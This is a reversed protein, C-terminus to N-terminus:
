TTAFYLEVEPSRANDWIEEIADLVNELGSVDLFSKFQGAFSHNVHDEINASSRVAYSKGPGIKESLESRLDERLSPDSDLYRIYAQWTCVYTEPVAYAKDMLTRLHFAKGGAHEPLRGKNLSFIYEGTM